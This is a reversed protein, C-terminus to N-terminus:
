NMDLFHFTNERNFGDVLMSRLNRPVETFLRVTHPSYERLYKASTSCDAQVRICQTEFL